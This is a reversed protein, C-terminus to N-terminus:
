SNFSNSGFQHEVKFIEDCVCKCIECGEPLGCKCNISNFKCKSPLNYSNEISWAKIPHLLGKLKKGEPTISYTIKNNVKARKILNFKIMRKLRNSLLTPNILHRSLSYLENYTIPTTDIKTFMAFTWKKGLFSYLDILECKKLENKRNGM